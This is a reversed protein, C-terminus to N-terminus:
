FLGFADRAYRRRQEVLAANIHHLIASPQRTPVRGRALREVFLFSQTGFAFVVARWYGGVTQEIQSGRTARDAHDPRTVRELDFGAVFEAFGDHGSRGDGVVFEVNTARIM